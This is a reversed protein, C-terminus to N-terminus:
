LIINNKFDVYNIPLKVYENQIVMNKKSTINVFHSPVKYYEGDNGNIGVAGGSTISEIVGEMKPKYRGPSFNVTMGTRFLVLNSRIVQRTKSKDVYDRIIYESNDDPRIPRIVTGLYNRDDKPDKYRVIDDYEFTRPEPTAMPVAAKRPKPPIPELKSCYTGRETQGIQVVVETEENPQPPNIRIIIGEQGTSTHVVRTGIECWEPKALPAAARRPKPAAMPAPAGPIPGLHICEVVRATEEGPVGVRAQNASAFYQLLVVQISGGGPESYLVVNGENLRCFAAGADETPPTRAAARRHKPAGLAITFKDSGPLKDQLDDRFVYGENPTLLPVRMKYYYDFRREANGMKKSNLNESLILANIRNKIDEHLYVSFSNSEPYNINFDKKLAPNSFHINGLFYYSQDNDTRKEQLIPHSVKQRMEKILDRLIDKKKIFVKKDGDIKKFRLTMRPLDVPTILIPQVLITNYLSTIDPNIRTIGFTTRYTLRTGGRSIDTIQAPNIIDFASLTRIHIADDGMVIDGLYISRLNEEDSIFPLNKILLNEYLVSLHYATASTRNHLINTIFHDKYLDKFPIYKGTKVGCLDWAALRKHHLSLLPLVTSQVPLSRRITGNLLDIGRIRSKYEGSWNRYFHGNHQWGGTLTICKNFVFITKKWRNWEEYFLNRTQDYQFIEMLNQYTTLMEFQYLQQKYGEMRTSISHLIKTAQRNQTSNDHDLINDVMYKHVIKMAEVLTTRHEGGSANYWEIARGVCMNVVAKFDFVSGSGKFLNDYYATISDFLPNIIHVKYEGKEFYKDTLLASRVAEVLTKILFKFMHNSMDQIFIVTDRQFHEVELANINEDYSDEKLLEPKIGKIRATEMSILINDMIAAKTYWLNTPDFPKTSGAEPIPQYVYLTLGKSQIYSPDESKKYELESKITPVQFYIQINQDNLRDMRGPIIDMGKFETILIRSLLLLKDKVNKLISLPDPSNRNAHLVKKSIFVLSIMLSYYDPIQQYIFEEPADHDYYKSEITDLFGYLKKFLIINNPNSGSGLYNNIQRGKKEIYKTLALYLEKCLPIITKPPTELRLGEHTKYDEGYIGLEDNPIYKTYSNMTFLKCHGDFMVDLQQSDKYNKHNYAIFYVHDDFTHDIVQYMSSVNWCPNTFYLKFGKEYKGLQDKDFITVEDEFLIDNERNFNWYKTRFFPMSKPCQKKAEGLNALNTSHENSMNNNYVEEDYDHIYYSDSIINYFDTLNATNVVIEEPDPTISNCDIDIKPGDNPLIVTVTGAQKNYDIIKIPDDKKITIDGRTIDKNNKIITNLNSECYNMYQYTIRLEGREPRTGTIKVLRYNIVNGPFEIRKLFTKGNFNEASMMYGPQDGPPLELIKNAISKPYNYFTSGYHKTINHTLSEDDQSFDSVQPISMPGNAGITLPVIPVILNIDKRGSGLFVLENLMISLTTDGSRFEAADKQQSGPIFRGTYNRQSLHYDLNNSFDKIRETLGRSFKECMGRFDDYNTSNDAILTELAVLFAPNYIERISTINQSEICRRLWKLDDQFTTHYLSWNANSGQWRYYDFNNMQGSRHQWEKSNPGTDPVGTPTRYSIGTFLFIYGAKSMENLFGTIMMGPYNLYGDKDRTLFFDALIKDHPQHNIPHCVRPDICRSRDLHIGARDQVVKFFDQLTANPKNLMEAGKFKNINPVRMYECWNAPHKYQETRYGGPSYIRQNFRQDIVHGYSPPKYDHKSMPIHRLIVTGSRLAECESRSTNMAVDPHYVNTNKNYVGWFIIGTYDHNPDYTAGSEFDPLELESIKVCRRFINDSFYEKRLNVNIELENTSAKLIDSNPNINTGGIQLISM